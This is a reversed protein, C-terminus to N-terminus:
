IAFALSMLNLTAWTDYVNRNSVRYSVLLMIFDKM